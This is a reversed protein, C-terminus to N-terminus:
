RIVQVETYANPDLGLERLDADDFNIDGGVYTGTSTNMWYRDYSNDVQYQQGTPTAM